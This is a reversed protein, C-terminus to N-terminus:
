KLEIPTINYGLKKLQNILGCEYMLHSLGVAIFCNKKELLEKIPKIWKNNRDTLMLTNSCPVNLQYSVEMNSYWDIEECYDSDENSIKRIINTLRKKHKKRPMGEVDKNILDIQEETTELGYLEINQEIARSGIYDDLSLSTDNASKNLCIQQKFYRNLFVYMETPTMKNYDTPSKDFLSKVFILDIKNLYKNWKTKNTRQNIIDEAMRGPINLNEKILLDCSELAQNARTLSDFFSKGFAHHTGFLYSINKSNQNTIKFLVTKHKLSDNSNQGILYTTTFILFLITTIKKM